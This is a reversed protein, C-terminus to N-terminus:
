QNKLFLDIIHIKLVGIAKLYIKLKRKSEKEYHASTFYIHAAVTLRELRELRKVLLLTNEATDLPLSKIKLLLKDHMLKHKM